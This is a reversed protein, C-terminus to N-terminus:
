GDASLTDLQDKMLDAFSARTSEEKSLGNGQWHTELVVTGAYGDERLRRLGPALDLDGGGIREWRTLGSEPDVVVANKLHVHATWRRAAEYGALLDEEGSVYDNGPDWVMKLAPHGVAALIMATNRCTNGWCSRVNEVVLVRGYGSAVDAAQRLGAVIMKLYDDPVSGGGLLRPSPNGLGAMGSKRFSFVRVYPADWRFALECGRRVTDLHFRFEPREEPSEPGDLLMAKFAPTGVACVQFGGQRVRQEVRAAEEETLETVSRGWLGNLEVERLGLEAAVTLARDLDADIEDTIVGLRFM